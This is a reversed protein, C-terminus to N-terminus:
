ATLPTQTLHTLRTILDPNEILTHHTGPIKQFAVHTFHTQWYTPDSTASEIQIVHCTTTPSAAPTHGTRSLAAGSAIMLRLKYERALVSTAPIFPAIRTCLKPGAKVLLPLTFRAIARNLLIWLRDALARPGARWATLISASIRALLKPGLATSDSLVPDIVAIWNIETASGRCLEAVRIAIHAGISYGALAAPGPGAAQTVRQATEAALPEFGPNQIQWLWDPYDILLAPMQAACNAHFTKFQQNLGGAGPLLLIKTQTPL